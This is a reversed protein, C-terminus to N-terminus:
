GLFGRLAKLNNSKPWELMATITKPDAKVGSGSVVHGLYNVEAVGFISKSSKVFLKQKQLTELVVKLHFLHETMDKIYVLNDDFFILVFRRLYPRFIDNM